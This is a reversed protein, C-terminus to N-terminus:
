PLVKVFHCFVSAGTKRSVSDDNATSADYFLQIWNVCRTNPHPAISLETTPSSIFSNLLMRSHTLTPMSKGSEISTILKLSIWGNWDTTDAVYDNWRETNGHWLLKFCCFAAVYSMHTRLHRDGVSGYEARFLMKHIIYYFRNNMRNGLAWWNAATTGCTM